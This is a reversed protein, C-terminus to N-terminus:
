IDLEVESRDEITEVNKKFDRGLREAEKADPRECAALSASSVLLLVSVMIRTLCMPM